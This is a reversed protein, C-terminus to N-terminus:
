RTFCAVRVWVNGHWDGHNVALALQLQQVLARARDQPADDFGIERGAFGHARAVKRARQGNRQRGRRDAVDHRIQLM